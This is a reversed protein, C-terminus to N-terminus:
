NDLHLLSSVGNNITKALEGYGEFSSTCCPGFWFSFTSFLRWATARQEFGFMISETLVDIQEEYGGLLLESSSLDMPDAQDIAHKVIFRVAPRFNKPIDIRAAQRSEVAFM